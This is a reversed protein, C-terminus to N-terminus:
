SLVALAERMTFSGGYLAKGIIAGEIGQQHLESLTKVDDLQAIGGSAIVPRSTRSIVKKLLEINPGTLTGDREIDTVVYRACGLHDFHSILDYIDGASETWGRTAVKQGRVDISIAIQDGYRAIARGVWEPMEIAATGINVRECGTALARALTQNDRIGGSLEIKVNTLQSLRSIVESNDGHGFAADLDVVHLWEAGDDLFKKAAIIPDGYDTTQSLEGQYLRVSRGAKLDIAPLLQFSM